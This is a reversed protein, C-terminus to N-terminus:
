EPPPKLSYYGDQSAVHRKLRPWHQGFLSDLDRSGSMLEELLDQLKIPVDKCYAEYLLRIARQMITGQFRFTESGIKLISNDDSLSIASADESTQRGQRRLALMRLDILTVGETAIVDSMAVVRAGAGAVDMLFDRPTATLVLRIRDSPRDDIAQRLLDADAARRLRRALWVTSATRSGFPHSGLELVHDGALEKPHMGSMRLEDGLLCIAVHKWDLRMRQLETAGVGVWGEYPDHYGAEGEHEDFEVRHIGSATAVHTEPTTEVLLGAEALILVGDPDMEELASRRFRVEGSEMLRLMLTAAPWPPKM